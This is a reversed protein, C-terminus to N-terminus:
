IFSSSNTCCNKITYIYTILSNGIFGIILVFLSSFINIKRALSLLKESDDKDFLMSNNM